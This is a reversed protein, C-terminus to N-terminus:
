CREFTCPSTIHFYGSLLLFWACLFLSYEKSLVLQIVVSPFQLFDYKGLLKRTRGINFIFDSYLSSDSWIYRLYGLWKGKRDEPGFMIYKESSKIGNILCFLCEPLHRNHLIMCRSLVCTAQIYLIVLFLVNESSKFFRMQLHNFLLLFWWLEITLIFQFLIWIYMMLFYDLM